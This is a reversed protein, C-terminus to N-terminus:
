NRGGRPKIAMAPDAGGLHVRLTTRPRGDGRKGTGECYRCPHLTEVMDGKIRHTTTEWGLGRCGPCATKHHELGWRESLEVAKRATWKALRFIYRRAKM